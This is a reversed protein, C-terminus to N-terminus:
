QVPKLGTTPLLDASDTSPKLHFSYGRSLQESSFQNSGFGIFKGDDLSPFPFALDTPTLPLFAYSVM